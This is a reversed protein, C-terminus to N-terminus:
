GLAHNFQGWIADPQWDLPEGRVLRPARWAEPGAPPRCARSGRRTRSRPRRGPRPPGARGAPAARRPDGARGRSGPRHHRRRGVAGPGRVRRARRGPRRPRTASDPTAFARLLHARDEGTAARTSAPWRGSTTPASRVSGRTPRALPWAVARTPAPGPRRWSSTGRRSRSARAERLPAPRGGDRRPGLDPLRRRRRRRHGRATLREGIGDRRRDPRGLGHRDLRGTRQGHRGRTASAGATRTSRSWRRCAPHTAVFELWAQRDGWDDALIADALPGSDDATM